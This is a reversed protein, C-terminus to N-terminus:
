VVHGYVTLCNLVVNWASYEDLYTDTNYFFLALYGIRISLNYLKVMILSYCRYKSVDSHIANFHDCKIAVNYWLCLNSEIYMRPTICNQIKGLNDEYECGEKM